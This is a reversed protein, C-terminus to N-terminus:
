LFNLLLQLTVFIEIFPLHNGDRIPLEIVTSVLFVVSFIVLNGDRIPLEIVAQWFM